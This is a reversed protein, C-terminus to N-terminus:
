RSVKPPKAPGYSDRWGKTTRREAWKEPPFKGANWAAWGRPGLVQVQEAKSLGTFAARTDPLLSRPEDQDIGLQRWTKTVPVRSCRCNQHGLPGPEDLGFVRGNMGWCAPCTRPGLTAVWQWGALVDAHSAQALQAAARHADLTETRAITMARALGGNFGGEARQLIRRATERPNSGVAVGRILERRMVAQAQVSLPRAASTIQQTSRAVIADVQGPDVKSWAELDVLQPANPPLQSDIISAQAGGTIDIIQQLSGTVTVAALQGLDTLRLLALQLAKQLRSSRRMQTITITEGAVLMDTLVATLDVAVEDWATAWARVLARVDRDSIRRIQDALEQELHLTRDTAAM